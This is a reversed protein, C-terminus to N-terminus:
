GEMTIFDKAKHYHPKGRDVGDYYGTGDHERWHQDYWFSLPNVVSFCLQGEWYLIADREWGHWEQLHQKIERQTRPTKVIPAKQEIM